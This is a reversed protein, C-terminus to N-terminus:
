EFQRDAFDAVEGDRDDAWFSGRRFGTYRPVGGGLGILSDLAEARLNELLKLKPAATM